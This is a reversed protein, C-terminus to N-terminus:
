RVRQALVRALLRRLRHRRLRGDADAGRQEAEALARGIKGAGAVLAEHGRLEAAGVFGFGVADAELEGRAGAVIRTGADRQPLLHDGGVVARMLWFEQATM